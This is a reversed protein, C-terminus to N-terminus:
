HAFARFVTVAIASVVALAFLVALCGLFVAKGLQPAIEEDASM